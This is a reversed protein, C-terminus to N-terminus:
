GLCRACHIHQLQTESCFVGWIVGGVLCLVALFHQLQTGGCSVGDYRGFVALFFRSGLYSNLSVLFVWYRVM